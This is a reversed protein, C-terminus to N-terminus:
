FHMEGAAGLSNRFNQGVGIDEHVRCTVFAIRVHNDLGKGCSAAYQGAIVGATAGPISLGSTNSALVAGKPCLEDARRFIEGKVAMDESVAEVLLQVSDCATDLSIRLFDEANM